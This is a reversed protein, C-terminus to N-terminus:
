APAGVGAWLGAVTSYVWLSVRCDRFFASASSGYASLQDRYGAALRGLLAADDEGAGRRNTKWDVIWLEAAAPDHLVLDMVGDIWEGPALPAFIGAEALRIWRRERIIRFPESGLFREWEERGRDAFGMERARALSAAGHAEVAAGDGDWPMFELTEHWWVGYELPDVDSDRVPLPADLSSEHLSARAHDPAAALEHPLIRRPFAPAASPPRMPAAGEGPAPIGPPAPEPAPAAPVPEPIPDLAGPALGWFEGFSDKDPPGESWPIVLARRARTLTVYLLRVTNRQLERDLSLRTEPGVGDNDFVVRSQGDLGRVIRLGTEPKHGISRWLGVPIVVPWELGKASHSTILNIADMGPRGPARFEDVSGLLDRLWGRPGAGETGLEAARALLRALEDELGGDPDAIRAKAALGCAGALDAAFRELAEGEVDARDIFPELVGIARAVPEAHGATERWQFAGARLASAIV